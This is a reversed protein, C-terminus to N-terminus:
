AMADVGEQDLLTKYPACSAKVQLKPDTQFQEKVHLPNCGTMVAQQAHHQALVGARAHVCSAVQKGPVINTCGVSVTRFEQV